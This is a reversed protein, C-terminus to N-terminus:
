IWKDAKRIGEFCKGSFIEFTTVELLNDTASLRVEFLARNGRLYHEGDERFAMDRVQITRTGDRHYEIISNFRNPVPLM